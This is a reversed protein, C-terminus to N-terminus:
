ELWLSLACDDGNRTIYVPMFSLGLEKLGDYYLSWPEGDEGSWWLFAQGVSNYYYAVANLEQGDSGLYSDVREFTQM